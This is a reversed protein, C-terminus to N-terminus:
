PRHLKEEFFAKSAIGDASLGMDGDSRKVAPDSLVALQAFDAQIILGGPRAGIL